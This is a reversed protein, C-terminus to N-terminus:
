QVITVAITDGGAIHLRESRTTRHGSIKPIGVFQVSGAGGFWADSVPIISRHLSLADGVRTRTGGDPIIYMTYDYLTQNDVALYATSGTGTQNHGACAVALTAALVALLPTRM